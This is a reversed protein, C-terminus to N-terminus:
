RPIRLFEEAKDMVEDSLHPSVPNPSFVFLDNKFGEDFNWMTWRHTLVMVRRQEAAPILHTRLWERHRQVSPLAEAIRRNKPEKSIRESRYAMANVVAAQGGELLKRLRTGQLYYPHTDPGCPAPSRLRKRYEEASGRSSFEEPTRLDDWGGNALLVFIRARRVDGVFAPPPFDTNITHQNRYQEFIPEDEPHITGALASWYEVLPEAISRPRRFWM